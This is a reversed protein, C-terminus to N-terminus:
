ETPTVTFGKDRLLSLLGKDGPLHGAGVAVLISSTPILGVLIDSWDSNRQNILKDATEEDMGIEPDEMISLMLDLNGAIYAEALERAKAIAADNLRVNKMLDEAQEAIPTDFLLSWQFEATELGKVAKGAALAASQVQTDFQDTPDFDPFANMSQFIALQNTVMVPKLAAMQAALGAQGTYSELLTNVSDIQAPSLVSTLLSDAPALVHAMMKQQGEPSTLDAMDLEGFVTTVESIAQRLGKVKDIMGAPAVHHTGLIYSVPGGSPPTVKWLLQASVLAPLACLCLLATIIRKMKLKTKPSTTTNYTDVVGCLYPFKEM